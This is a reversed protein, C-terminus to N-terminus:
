ENEFEIRRLGQEILAKHRSWSQSTLSGTVDQQSEALHRHWQARQVILAYVERWGQLATEAAAEPRAFSAHLYVSEGLIKLLLDKHAGETLHAHLGDRDLAPNVHFASFIEERLDQLVPDDFDLISFTEEVEHLLRPHNLLTAFLIYTQQRQPNFQFAVGHSQTVEAPRARQRQLYFFRNQFETQYIKRLPESAIQQLGAFAEEKARALKEPTRCDKEAAYMGWLKDVLPTPTNLLAELESKRGACLLTDPDEGAPLAVFHLSRGPQLIPLAQLAARQAANKGAFDGDFCLVPEEDFRWVETLHDATLATGLPALAGSLGAQHLAIVDMYGEVIKCRLKGTRFGAKYLNLGYLTKSKDFVLTQPSNLYKPKTDDLVRGGFAITRGRADHIPFILRNRFRDYPTSGPARGVLGAKELLDLTYGRSQFIKLLQNHPPAFGLQFHSITTAHLQRQALYARAPVAQPSRLQDQFWITAEELLRYIKGYLSEQAPDVAAEPPPLTIGYKDALYQVAELFSLGQKAQLFQFADGSAGCGFCHYVGKQDNVTFSPSKDQHFPCLGAHERGMKKLRVSAGVIHSLQVRGRIEDLIRPPLQM